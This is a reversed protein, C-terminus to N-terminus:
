RSSSGLLKLAQKIRADLGSIDTGIKKLAERAERASYGLSILADLVSSDDELKLSSEGGALKERLELVIKEAIRRGIGSIKTLYVTDGSAIARKLTDLPALSLVNIASRPGIGSIGILMEFFELEAMSSFGYLEMINERVYLYTFFRMASGERARKLTEASAFVKYGVGNVDVLLFRSGRFLIKGELHAIM